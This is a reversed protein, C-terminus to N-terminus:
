EAKKRVKLLLQWATAEVATTFADIAYASEVLNDVAGELDAIRHRLEAWTPLPRDDYPAIEESM